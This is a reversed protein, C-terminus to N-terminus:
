MTDRGGGGGGGGEGAGYRNKGRDLYYFTRFSCRNTPLSFAPIESPFNM